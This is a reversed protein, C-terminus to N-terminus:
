AARGRQTEGLANILAALANVTEARATVVESGTEEAIAAYDLGFEIRLIVLERQRQPLHALAQEWADLQDRGVLQEVRSSPRGREAIRARVTASRDALLRARLRVLVSGNEAPTRDGPDTGTPLADRIWEAADVAAKMGAPLRERAWRRLLAMYHGRRALDLTERRSASSGVEYPRARGSERNMVTALMVSGGEGCLFIGSRRAATWHFSRVACHGGTITM